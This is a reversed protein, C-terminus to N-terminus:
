VGSRRLVRQGDCVGGEHLRHDRDVRHRVEAAVAEAVVARELQSKEVPHQRHAVGGSCGVRHSGGRTRCGIRGRGGRQGVHAGVHTLVNAPQRETSPRGRQPERGVVLRPEDFRHAVAVVIVEPLVVARADDIM